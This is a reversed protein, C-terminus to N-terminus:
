KMKELEKSVFSVREKNSMGCLQRMIYLWRSIGSSIDPDDANACGWCEKDESDETIKDGCQECVEEEGWVKKAYDINFLIESIHILDEIEEDKFSVTFFDKASWNQNIEKICHNTYTKGCKELYMKVAEENTM